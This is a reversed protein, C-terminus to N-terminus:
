RNKTKKASRNLQSKVTDLLAVVDGVTVGKDIADRGLLLIVQELRKLIPDCRRRGRSGALTILIMEEDSEIAGGRLREVLCLVDLPLDSPSILIIPKGIGEVGEVSLLSHIMGALDDLGTREETKV